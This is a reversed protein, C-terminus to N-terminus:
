RMAADAVNSHFKGLRQCAMKDPPSSPPAPPPSPPPTPCCNQWCPHLLPVAAFGERCEGPCQTLIYCAGVPWEATSKPRGQSSLEEMDTDRKRVDAGVEYYRRSGRRLLAAAPLALLLLLAASIRRQSGTSLEDAHHRSTTLM